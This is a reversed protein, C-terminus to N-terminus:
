PVRGGAMQQDAAEFADLIKSFAKPINSRDRLDVTYRSDSNNLASVHGDSYLVHAVRGRHNAYSEINFGKLEPGAFFVTDMVIARIPKGQRNEGLTALRMSPPNFPSRPNDYLQTNGGHRYYYGGQAQKKGVKELETQAQKVLDSGPCFLVRPTRALYPDLLLGLAVPQGNQLSLLSTPAGTSPYFNGANNFGPAKPGFPIGGDHDSAYAGIAIGIQRLNSICAAGKGQDFASQLAPLLLACLVGVVAVVVLLEVLTFCQDPHLRSPSRVNM